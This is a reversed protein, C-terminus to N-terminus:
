FLPKCIECVKDLSDRAWDMIDCFVALSYHELCLEITAWEDPGFEHRPTMAMIKDAIKSAETAVQLRERETPATEIRDLFVRLTGCRIDLIIREM